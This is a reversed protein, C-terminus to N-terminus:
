AVDFDLFEFRRMALFAVLADADIGDGVTRVMYELPSPRLSRPVEMGNPDGPGFSAHLRALAPWRGRAGSRSMLADLRAAPWGATLVMDLPVGRHALRRLLAGGGAPAHVDADPRTTRWRLWADDPALARPALSRPLSWPAFLRLRLPGLPRFGLLRVLGKASNENGVGLVIGGGAEEVHRLLLRATAIMLGPVRAAPDVATNLAFFTPVREFRPDDLPPVPLLAYHALLAGQSTHANVVWAPGAPSGLYAWALDEPWRRPRPFAQALLPALAPLEGATASHPATFRVDSRADKGGADQRTL